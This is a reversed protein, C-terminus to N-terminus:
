FVRQHVFGHQYIIITTQGSVSTMLLLFNLNSDLLKPKYDIIYMSVSGNRLFGSTGSNLDPPLAIGMVLLVLQRFLSSLFMRPM